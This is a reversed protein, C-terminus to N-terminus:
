ESMQQPGKVALYSGSLGLLIGLLNVWKLDQHFLVLAAILNLITQLVSIILATSSIPSGGKYLYYLVTEIGFLIVGVLVSIWNLQRFLQSVSQAGKTILLLGFCLASATFFSISLSAFPNEMKPLVKTLSHFCTNCIAYLFTWVFFM